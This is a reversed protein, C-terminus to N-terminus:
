YFLNKRYVKGLFSDSDLLEIIKSDSTFNIDLKQAIKVLFELKSEKVSDYQNLFEM